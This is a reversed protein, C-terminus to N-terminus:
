KMARLVYFLQGLISDFKTPTASGPEYHRENREGGELWWHLTFPSVDLVSAAISKTM